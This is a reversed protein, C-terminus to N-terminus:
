GLAPLCQCDPHSLNLLVSSGAHTCAILFYPGWGWHGVGITSITVTVVHHSYRSFPCNKSESCQTFSSDLQQLQNMISPLSNCLFNLSIALQVGIFCIICHFREIVPRRILSVAMIRVVMSPGLRDAM